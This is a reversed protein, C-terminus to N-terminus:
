EVDWFKFDQELRRLTTIFVRDQHKIVEAKSIATKLLIADQGLLRLWYALRHLNAELLFRKM